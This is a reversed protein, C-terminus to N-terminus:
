NRCIFDILYKINDSSKHIFHPINLTKVVEQFYLLEENQFKEINNINYFIGDRKYLRNTILGPTDYLLVIKQPALEKFTSMPIRTIKNSEDLLCFHGDLICEPKNIYNFAKILLDQNKNIESVRKDKSFNKMKFESILYSASYTELGTNESIIDCVYSKGVGHVGGIFIM